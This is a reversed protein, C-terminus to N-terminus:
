CNTRVKRPMSVLRRKQRESISWERKPPQAEGTLWRRHMKLNAPTLPFNIEPASWDYLVEMMPEDDGDLQFRESAIIAFAVTNLGSASIRNEIAADCLKLVHNRTLNFDDQMDDIMIETEISSKRIVASSLEVALVEIPVEGVLYRRVTDESLPM